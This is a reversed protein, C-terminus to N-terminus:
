YSEFGIYINNKSFCKPAFVREQLIEALEILSNMVRCQICRAVISIKIRYQYIVHIKTRGIICYLKFCFLGCILNHIQQTVKPSSIIIVMKPWLDSSVAWDPLEAM